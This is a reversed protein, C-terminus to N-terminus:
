AHKRRVKVDKRKMDINDRKRDGGGQRSAQM